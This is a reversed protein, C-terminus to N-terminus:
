FGWQEAYAALQQAFSKRELVRVFRDHRAREIEVPAAYGPVFFQYVFGNYFLEEQQRPDYRDNLRWVQSRPVELRDAIVVLQQVKNRSPVTEMGIIGDRPIICRTGEMDSVDLKKVAAYFRCLAYTSAEDKSTAFRPFFGSVPEGGDWVQTEVLHRFQPLADDFPAQTNLWAEYGAKQLARREKYFFSDKGKGFEDREEQKEQKLGNFKEALFLYTKVDNPNAAFVGSEAPYREIVDLVTRYDEAVEVLPRLALFKQVADASRYSQNFESATLKREFFSSPNQEHYANLSVLACEPAGNNVIGEFSSAVAIKVKPTYLAAM